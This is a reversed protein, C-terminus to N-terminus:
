LVCFILFNGSANEFIRYIVMQSQAVCDNAMDDTDLFHSLKCINACVLIFLKGNCINKEILELLGVPRNTLILVM